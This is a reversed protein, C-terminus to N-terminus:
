AASTSAGLVSRMWCLCECVSGQYLGLGMRVPVGNRAWDNLEAADDRLVAVADAKPGFDHMPIRDYRVIDFSVRQLLQRNNWGSSLLAAIAALTFIGLACRFARGRPTLGRGEPLLPLIFDPFPLYGYQGNRGAALGSGAADCHSPFAVCDPLHPWVEPLSRDWEGCCRSLRLSLFTPTRM